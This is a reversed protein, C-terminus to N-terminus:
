EGEKGKKVADMKSTAKRVDFGRMELYRTLWASSANPMKLGGDGAVPVGDYIAFLEYMLGMLKTSWRAFETLFRASVPIDSAQLVKAARVHAHLLQGNHRYFAEADEWLREGSKPGYEMRAIAEVDQTYDDLDLATQVM